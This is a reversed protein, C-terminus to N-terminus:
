DKLLFDIALQENKDCAFFAQIAEAEPFGMDVIRDIQAKESQTVQIQFPAGAGAGGGGGLQAEGGGGGGGAGGGAASNNLISIFQEQNQSILSLLQPNSQGIQQLLQPLNQPNRQLEDRMQQFQPLDRLFSLDNTPAGGGGGGGGSGVDDGGAGIDGVDGEDPPMEPIHGSLLYDAARDANHFSANLARMVQERPYGLSMLETIASELETGTLLTSEASSAQPLVSPTSSPTTTDSQSTTTTTSEAAPASSTTTTTPTDVSMSEPAAVSSATASSSSSSSSSSTEKPKDAAPKAKQKVVMVVIFNKDDIACESITKDDELIKGAYILKQGAVPFEEGKEAAIKEKLVKIKEAEDIELKFTKQQLTKFTIQM